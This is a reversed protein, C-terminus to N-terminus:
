ESAADSFRHAIAAAAFEAAGDGAVANINSTFEGGAGYAVGLQAFIEDTCTYYNETIFAQIKAAQQQAQACAPDAGSKAMSGFPVFLQMLRSGLDAEQEHTYGAHKEEFEGWAQTNGWEQKARRTYEDIKGTDFAEFSVTDGEKGRLSEARLSEARLSEALEILDDLHQRRMRLLEVQQDLARERDFGPSDLVRRIDELSFELERFLFIQQLRRLDDDSYLRYGADSRSSPSLLGIKDYYRLTRISVGALESVQGVTKM